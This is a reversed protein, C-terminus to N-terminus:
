GCFSCLLFSSVQQLDAVTWHGELNFVPLFFHFQDQRLSRAKQSYCARQWHFFIWCLCHWLGYVARFASWRFVGLTVWLGDFCLSVRFRIEGIESVRWFCWFSFSHLKTCAQGVPLVPTNSFDHGIIERSCCSRM